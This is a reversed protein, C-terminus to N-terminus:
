NDKNVFKWIIGGVIGSLAGIAHGSMSIKKNQLSPGVVMIVIALILEVDITKKSVLEWTFLGFLIGSFGIGCPLEKWISKAAVEALTNFVLLFILLWVFPKLGMEQEVRSIAYLAYLNSVLHMTDIHVFNSMMVEHIGKGCPLATLVKANFLLFVIIMSIAIFVSVPIDNFHKKLTIM